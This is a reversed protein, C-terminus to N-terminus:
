NSSLKKGLNPRVCTKQCLERQPALDESVPASPCSLSERRELTLARDKLVHKNRFGHCGLLFFAWCFPGCITIPIIM